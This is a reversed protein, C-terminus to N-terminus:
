IYPGGWRRAWRCYGRKGALFAGGVGGRARRGAWRRRVPCCGGAPHGSAGTRDGGATAASVQCIASM